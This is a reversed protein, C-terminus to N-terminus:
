KSNRALWWRLGAVVCNAAIVFSTLLNVATSISSNLEPLVAVSDGEQEGPLAASDNTV